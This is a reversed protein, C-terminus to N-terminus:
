APKSLLWGKKQQFAESGAHQRCTSCPHTKRSKRQRGSKDRGGIIKALCLM